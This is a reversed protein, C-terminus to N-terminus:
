RSARSRPAPRRRVVRIEPTPPTDSEIAADLRDLFARREAERAERLRAMRLESLHEFLEKHQDAPQGVILLHTDKILNARREESCMLPTEQIMRTLIEKAADLSLEPERKHSSGDYPMTPQADKDGVTQIALAAPESASAAPCQPELM